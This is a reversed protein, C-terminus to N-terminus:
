WLDSKGLFCFLTIDYKTVLEVGVLQEQVVYHFARLHTTTRGAPVSAGVDAEVSHVVCREDLSGHVSRELFVEAGLRVVLM